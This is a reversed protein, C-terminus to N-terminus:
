EGDGEQPQKKPPPPPKLAERVAQLVLGEVRAVYPKADFQRAQDFPRVIRRRSSDLQVIRRYPGGEFPIKGLLKKTKKVNDELFVWLAEIYVETNLGKKAVQSRVEIRARFREGSLKTLKQRLPLFVRTPQFVIAANFASRLNVASAEVVELVPDRPLEVELDQPVGGIQRVFTSLEPYGQDILIVSLEAAIKYLLQRAPRHSPDILLGKRVSELAAFYRERVDSPDRGGRLARRGQELAQSGERLFADLRGRRERLEERQKRGEERRYVEVLGQQAERNAGDFALAKIYGVQAAELKGAELAQRAEALYSRVKAQRERDEKARREREASEEELRRRRAIRREVELLGDRAPRSSGDFGLAQEFARRAEELEKQELAASGQEVLRACEARNRAQVAAEREAEALQGLESAVDLLAQVAERSAGDLQQAAQFSRRANELAKRRREVDNPPCLELTRRGEAVFARAVETSLRGIRAEHPALKAAVQLSARADTLQGAAFSRRAESLFREVEAREERAQIQQAWRSLRHGTVFEHQSPSRAEEVLSIKPSLESPVRVLEGRVEWSREAAVFAERAERYEGAEYHEFGKEITDLLNARYRRAGELVTVAWGTALIAVLVLVGGITLARAKNRYAWKRLRYIPTARKAQIPLGSLYRSVDQKLALASQYREDRDKELAKLCIADLEWPLEPNHASPPPPEVFHIQHLVEAMTGKFPTKGALLEYLISGLAYVDSRVDIDEVKGAAQEPPMYRLTGLIDGETTLAGSSDESAQQDLRKAIGFDLVHPSGQEDVLINDPKLDRHIVGRSHAHHVGDCVQVFLPLLREGSDGAAVKAERLERQLSRGQVYDMCIFTRGEHEGADLIPVINPHNLVGAAEAERLFRRREERKAVSGRLLVKLAVQRRLKKHLARYVVGMGGRGIEAEIEFHHFSDQPAFVEGSPPGGGPAQTDDAATDGGHTAWGSTDGSASRALQVLTMAQPLSDSLRERVELATPRMETEKELLEEVLDVLFPPLGPRLQDVRPPIVSMQKEFVEQANRGPFPDEGSLLRFAMVGLAYLDSAPCWEQGHLVAPDIAVPTGVVKGTLTLRVSDNLDLALGFDSLKCEGHPTMLVNAATLDRHLFGKAHLYALAAACQDLVGVVEDVELAGREELITELDRGEIVELALYPRQTEEDVGSDLVRVVNPHEVERLFAGEREFRERRAEELYAGGLLKLAVDEGRPGEALHVSGMGGAGLLRRLRYPGVFRGAKTAERPAPVSVTDSGVEEEASPLPGPQLTGGECVPCATPGLAAVLGMALEFRAACGDCSLSQLPGTLAREAPEIPVENEEILVEFLAKTEGARAKADRVTDLPTGQEEAWRAFAEDVLWLQADLLELGTRAVHSGIALRVWLEPM